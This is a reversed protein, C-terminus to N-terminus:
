TRTTTPTDPVPNPAAPPVTGDYVFDAVEKAASLYAQTGDFTFEQALLTLAFERSTRRPDVATERRDLLERERRVRADEDTYDTTDPPVDTM